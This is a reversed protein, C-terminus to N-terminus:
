DQEIEKLYLEAKEQDSLEWPDQLETPISPDVKKSFEYPCHTCGSQCCYGRKRLFTETLVKEGKANFYYDIHLQLKEKTM